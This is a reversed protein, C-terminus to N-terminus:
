SKQKKDHIAQIALVFQVLINNLVGVCSGLTSSLVNVCMGRLVQQSPLASLEKIKAEALLQGDIVAGKIKFAEKEKSFDVLIKCSEILDGALFILATNGKCDKLDVSSGTDKLVKSILTNKTVVMRAQKDSLNNRLKNMTFADIKDFEVFVVKQTQDYSRKLDRVIRERFYRGISSSITATLTAM